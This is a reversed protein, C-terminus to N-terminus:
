FVECNQVFFSIVIHAANRYSAHLAQSTMIWDVLQNFIEDQDDTIKTLALYCDSVELAVRKFSIKFSELQSLYEKIYNYYLDNDNKIAKLM